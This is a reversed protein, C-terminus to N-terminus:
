STMRGYIEASAHRKSMELMWLIFIPCHYSPFTLLFTLFDSGLFYHIDPLSILLQTQLMFHVAALLIKQETNESISGFSRGLPVAHEVSCVNSFSFTIIFEM